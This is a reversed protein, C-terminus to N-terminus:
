GDRVRDRERDSGPQVDAEPEAERDAGAPGRKESDPYDAFEEASENSEPLSAPTQGAHEERAKKGDKREPEM